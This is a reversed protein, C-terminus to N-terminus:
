LFTAAMTPPTSPAKQPKNMMMIMMMHQRCRSDDDVLYYIDVKNKREGRRERLRELLCFRAHQRERNIVRDIRTIKGGRDKFGNLIKSQTHTRSSTYNNVNVNVLIHKCCLPETILLVNIEREM